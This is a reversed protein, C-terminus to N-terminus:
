LFKLIKEYRNVDSKKTFGVLDSHTYNIFQTAVLLFLNFSLFIYSLPIICQILKFTQKLNLSLWSFLEFVFFNSLKSIKNYYGPKKKM